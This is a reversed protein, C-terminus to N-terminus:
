AVTIDIKTSTDKSYRLVITLIGNELIANNIGTVGRLEESFSMSGIFSDDTKCTIQLLQDTITSDIEDITFGPVKFRCIISDDTYKIDSDTCKIRGRFIDDIRTDPKYPNIPEYPNFPKILDLRDNIMM